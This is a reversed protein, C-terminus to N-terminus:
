GQKLYAAEEEEINEFRNLEEKLWSHKLKRVANVFIIRIWLPLLIDILNCFCSSAYLNEITKKMDEPTKKKRFCNCCNICARKSFTTLDQFQICWILSFMQGFIGTIWSMCFSIVIMFCTVSRYWDNMSPIRERTFYVMGYVSWILFFLGTITGWIGNILAFFWITNPITVNYKKTPDPDSKGSLREFLNHIDSASLKTTFFWGWFSVELIVTFAYDQIAFGSTYACWNLLEEQFIHNLSWTTRLYNVYIGFFALICMHFIITSVPFFALCM